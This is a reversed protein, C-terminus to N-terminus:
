SSTEEGATGHHRGDNGESAPFRRNETPQASAEVAIGASEGFQPFIHALLSDFGAAAGEYPGALDLMAADAVLLVQGLGLSCHALLGDGPIACHQAEGTYAFTGRLNVPLTTGFHDVQVLGEDQGEDFHLGLGWHALIPSLLAVDQPRRRDGLGFRSEGTMMPDVFLLVHGGERVWADLAVNEEATLGRPQAMLLARHPALAEASLYDLPALPARREIFARAWHPQAEGALIEDFGETEGWYIPITGM